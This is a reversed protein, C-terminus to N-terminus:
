RDLLSVIESRGDLLLRLKNLLNRGLIIEDGEEDGVVEIAPLRLEDIGIDVTFTQVYRWEGWHSRIRAEDAIPANLDDLIAQPVMSGDAGTDVIAIFPGLKLSEEPYGLMIELTPIAPYYTTLYPLEHRRWAHAAFSCNESPAKNLEASCCRSIGMNTGFGVICYHTTVIMILWNVMTFLLM